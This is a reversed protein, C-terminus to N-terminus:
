RVEHLMTKVQTRSDDLREFCFYEVKTFGLHLSGHERFSAVPGQPSGYNM